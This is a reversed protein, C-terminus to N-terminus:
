KASRLPLEQQVPSISIGLEGQQLHLLRRVDEPAIDGEIMLATVLLPAGEKDFKLSTKVSKLLAKFDVSEVITGGKLIERAVPIKGAMTTLCKICRGTENVVGPKGCESCRRDMDVRMEVTKTM